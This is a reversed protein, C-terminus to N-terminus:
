ATVDSAERCVRGLAVDNFDTDPHPPMAIRVLRGEALWRAAASQAAREGAGSADHDALIVVTEVIPPLVLGVIGSTSLAAWAPLDTAQMASLATEIGETVMLLEAAPALRVAAGGIPGLSARDTRRWEGASRRALWTRHVGVVGGKAHEVIAVMAPGASGDQRRLSATWRLSPPVPITIGRGALYAALPTGSAERARDWIRRAAAIRGAADPAAVAFHRQTGNGVGDPGIMGRKRLADLVEGPDCGAFCKAILGREGDRIALTAGLSGHVPCGCRWWGGCRRTGGLAVAIEAAIM